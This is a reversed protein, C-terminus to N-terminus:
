WNNVGHRQTGYLTWNWFAFYIKNRAYKLTNQYIAIQSPLDMPSNIPDEINTLFQKQADFATGTGLINTRTQSQSGLIAWCYNRIRENIRKVGAKTFGNSNDLIFTTWANSVRADQAIYDIHM